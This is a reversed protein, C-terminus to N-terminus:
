PSAGDMSWGEIVIGTCVGGPGFSREEFRVQGGREWEVVTSARTGYTPGVLFAASLARELARPIGTDPLREEDAPTSEALMAFLRERRAEATPAALADHMAGAALAVKPWPVDLTANSVAHVGAALM